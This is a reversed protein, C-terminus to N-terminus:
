SSAQARHECQEGIFTPITFHFVTAFEGSPSEVWIHGGLREVTHKCIALGLGTSGHSRHKEVRYFREFIRMSDVEPIGTGKDCISFITMGANETADKPISTGKVVIEDGEPAYRGANELLNRFVQTLHQANAKLLTNEDFEIKVRIRRMDLQLRCLATAAQVSEVASVESIPLPMHTNELRALALLEEVMRALYAGNKRIIEVFRKYEEPFGETTSLTEAYGQIATLPTRLEHSVNAVFDRRVRELRVIPSIDHFVVVAGLSLDNNSARTLHVSFFREPGLEIQLSQYNKNGQGANSSPIALIEDVAQQLGPVPIAEVVQLGKFNEVQPFMRRLARNYHQISGSPTLVLVGENMTNLITRLQENNANLDQLCTEFHTLMANMPTALVATPHAANIYLRRNFQGETLKKIFDLLQQFDNLVYFYLAVSVFGAMIIAFLIYTLAHQLPKLQSLNPVVHPLAWLGVFFIAFATLFFKVRLSM